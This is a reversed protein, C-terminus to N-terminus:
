GIAYPADRCPPAGWYADAAAHGPCLTATLAFAGILALATRAAADPNPARDAADTV